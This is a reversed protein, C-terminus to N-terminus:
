LQLGPLTRPRQCPSLTMLKTSAAKTKNLDNSSVDKLHVLKEVGSYSQGALGCSLSLIAPLCCLTTFRDLLECFNETHRLLLSRVSPKLTWSVCPAIPWVSDSLLLLRAFTEIIVEAGMVKCIHSNICYFLLASVPGAVRVRLLISSRPWPSINILWRTM